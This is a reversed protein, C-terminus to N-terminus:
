HGMKAITIAFFLVVLGLLVLGLAKNRGAIIRKREEMKSADMDIPESM